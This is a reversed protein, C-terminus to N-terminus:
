QRFALAPPKQWLHLAILGSALQGAKRRPKSVTECLFAVQRQVLDDAVQSRHMADRHMAPRDAFPQVPKAEAMVSVSSALSIKRGSTASRRLAQTSIKWGSM